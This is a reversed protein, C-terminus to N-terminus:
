PTKEYLETRNSLGEEEISDLDPLKVREEPFASALARLVLRWVNYSLRPYNKVSGKRIPRDYVAQLNGADTKRGVAAVYDGRRPDTSSGTNYIITQGLLSRQGTIASHLEVTVVIM